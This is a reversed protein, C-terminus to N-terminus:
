QKRWSRKLKRSKGSERCKESCYKITKKSLYTKKCFECDKWILNRVGAVRNRGKTVGTSGDEKLEGLKVLDAYYAWPVTQTRECLEQIVDPDFGAAIASNICAVKYELDFDYRFPDFDKELENEPVSWMYDSLYKEM